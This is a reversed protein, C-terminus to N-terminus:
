RAERGKLTRYLDVGAVTIATILLAIAMIHDFSM